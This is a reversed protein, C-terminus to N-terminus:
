ELIIQIILISTKIKIKVKQKRLIKKVTESLLKTVETMDRVMDQLWSFPNKDITTEKVVPKNNNKNKKGKILVSRRDKSQIDIVHNKTMNSKLDKEKDKASM